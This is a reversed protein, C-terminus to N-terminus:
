PARGATRASVQPGAGVEHLVGEAMVYRQSLTHIVDDLPNGRLVLIDAIKGVELSGLERGLGMETAGGMTAARLIDGRAAGAQQLYWLEGHTFLPPPNHASIGIKAGGAMLYAAARAVRFVRTSELPRTPPTTDLARNPYHARWKDAQDPWQRIVERVFSREADRASGETGWVINFNPTWTTGTRALFERVDAYVPVPFAPHDVATYGEAARIMADDLGQVHAVIGVGVERAANGFWRRHDRRRTMYEKMVTSQLDARHRTLRVADVSDSMVRTANDGYTVLNVGWPANIWRPGPVRGADRLEALALGGGNRTPGGPQWGFTVGYAVSQRLGLEGNPFLMKSLLNTGGQSHYHMDGIAPMLTLGTADIVRAGEPVTVRDSPGVARIRRGEVVLTGQEIVEGAGQTGNITIIRANTFAVIGAGVARPVTLRVTHFLEPGAGGITYRYIRNAYSYIFSSDSQWDVFEAGTDTIRTLASDPLDARVPPGDAPLRMLWLEDDIGMVLAHRGDPSAMMGRTDMGGMAVTRPMSGDLAVTRLETSDPRGVRDHEWSLALRQGDGTFAILRGWTERQASQVPAVLQAVPQTLSVWAFASNAGDDRIFALRTGDPSWSPALLTKDGGLVTTPEGGALPVTRLIGPTVGLGTRDLEIYAVTAGDPSLAPMFEFREPGATTLRRPTGDPLDQAWLYGVAGFVLTRGNPHLRPWQIGFVEMPGDPLGTRAGALPPVSRRVRARFPIVTAAGDSVAVRQIQGSAGIIIAAGDPTFAYGPREDTDDWRYPEDEDPLAMLERDAGPQGTAPDWDRIRLTSRGARDRRVYAMMRGDASFRPTFEHNGNTTDTLLARRGTSLDLSALVTYPGGGSVGGGWGAPVRETLVVTRGDPSQVGSRRTGPPAPNEIPVTTGSAVEVRFLSPSEETDFLGFLIGAGDSSWTPTGGVWNSRSGSHNTVRRPEGGEAPMVWVEQPGQGDRVMALQRGDPSFRPARHWSEGTTLQTADGGAIPLSYIHGLIDFVLTGGDPAVDVTMWTGESVEFAIERMGNSDGAQCGGIALLGTAWAMSHRHFADILRHLPSGPM